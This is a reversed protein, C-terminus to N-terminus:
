VYIFGHNIFVQKVDLTHSSNLSKGTQYDFKCGHWPCEITNETLKGKELPGGMHKCIAEIFYYHKKIKILLYKKENLKFIKKENKCDEVKCLKTLNETKM